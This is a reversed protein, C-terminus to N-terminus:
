LVKILLIIIQKDELDKKVIHILISILRKEIIGNIVIFWFIKLSFDVINYKKIWPTEDLIIIKDMERLLLGKFLIEIINIKRAIKIFSPKNGKWKQIILIISPISHFRANKKMVNWFIIGIETKIINVWWVNIMKNQKTFEKMTAILPIVINEIRFIKPNEDILWRLIIIITIIKDM